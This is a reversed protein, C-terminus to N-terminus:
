PPFLSEVRVQDLSVRWGLSRALILAKRAVDMGGLDIRPDPETYGRDMADQVTSSFSKGEELSTCLYGLTGSLVGQVMTVEDVCRNLAWVAEIVPVASGVTSEYRFRGSSVLADFVSQDGV